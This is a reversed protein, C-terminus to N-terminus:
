NCGSESVGVTSTGYPGLITQVKTVTSRGGICAEFEFDQLWGFRGARDFAIPSFESIITTPPPNPNPTGIWWLKNQFLPQREAPQTAKATPEAQRAAERIAAGREQRTETTDDPEAM